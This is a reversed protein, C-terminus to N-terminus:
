KLIERVKRIFTSIKKSPNLIKNISNGGYFYRGEQFLFSKYPEGYNAFFAGYLYSGYQNMPILDSKLLKILEGFNAPQYCTELYQYLAVGVLISPKKYYNAELGMTSGTTLIVNASKLLGYSNLNSEPM